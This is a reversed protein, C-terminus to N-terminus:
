LTSREADPWQYRMVATYGKRQRIATRPVVNCLPVTFWEGRKYAGRTATLQIRTYSYRDNWDATAAIRCPVLGVITDFYALM